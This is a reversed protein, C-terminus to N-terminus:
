SADAASTRASRIERYLRFMTPVQLRVVVEFDVIFIMIKQDSFQLDFTIIWVVRVVTVSL